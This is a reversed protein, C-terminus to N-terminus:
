RGGKVRGMRQLAVQGWHSNPYRESVQSYIKLAEDSKKQTEYLRGLNLLAEGVLPDDKSASTIELLTQIAVDPKGKGEEAYAKSIATMVRYRGRPYEQLYKAAIAIAEDFKQAEYQYNGVRVLAEEAALTGAHTSAVEQLLKLAEDRNATEGPKETRLKASVAILARRGDAEQREQYWAYAGFGLGGALAIAVAGVAVARNARIFEIAAITWDAVPNRRLVEKSIEATM